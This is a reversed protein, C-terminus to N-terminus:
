WDRSEQDRRDVFESNCVFWVCFLPRRLSIELSSLGAFSFLCIPFTNYTKSLAGWNIDDRGPWQFWQMVIPHKDMFVDINTGLLRSPNVDATHGTNMNRLKDRGSDPGSLGASHAVPGPQSAAAGPVNMTSVLSKRPCLWVEFKQSCEWCCCVPVTLFINCM